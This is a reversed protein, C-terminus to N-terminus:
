KFTLKIKDDSVKFKHVKRHPIIKYSMENKNVWYNSNENM